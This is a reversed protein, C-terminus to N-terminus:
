ESEATNETEAIEESPEVKVEEQDKEGEKKDLTKMIKKYFELTKETFAAEDIAEFDTLIELLVNIRGEIDFFKNVVAINRNEVLCYGSKFSGREYRVKYDLEEFITEIKQLTTKTYKFM